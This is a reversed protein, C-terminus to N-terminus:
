FSSIPRVHLSTRKTNNSGISTRNSGEVKGLMINYDYAGYLEYHESSTWYSENLSTGNSKLDTFISQKNNCVKGIGFSMALRAFEGVAPLYWFGENVGNVTYSYCANAAPYEETKIYSTHKRGSYDTLGYNEGSETPWNSFSYPLIFNETAQEHYIAQGNVPLYCRKYIINDYALFSINPIEEVDSAPGWSYSGIDQLAVIRGHISESLTIDINGDKEHSLAFVIGICTKNKDLTTSWTNDNYYYDGIRDATEIHADTRSITIPYTYQQGAEWTAAPMKVIYPFGDINLVLEAMGENEMVTPIVLIDVNQTTESSLTYKTNVSVPGVTKETIDGTIINMWGGNAISTNEEVNQLRINSLLGTGIDNPNRKISLTIRALAHKFHIHAEPNNSDVDENSKGYLYDKQQTIDEEGLRISLKGDTYDGSNPYFAYVPTPNETLLVPEKGFSWENEEYTAFYYKGLFYIGINDGTTFTTSEIVSRTQIDTTIRLLASNAISEEEGNKCSSLIMMCICLSLFVVKSKMNILLLNVM